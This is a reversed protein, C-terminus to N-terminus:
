MDEEDLFAMIDNQEKKNGLKVTEIDNLIEVEVNDQQMKAKQRQQHKWKVYIDNINGEIIKMIYCIMNYENQFNKANMWYTIDDKQKVFCEKIVEYDYFKHLEGIKRVMVPPVIQGEEYNLVEIAVYEMLDHRKGQEEKYTDYEEKNCYYKNLGKQHDTVKYFTDTDGKAKCIKCVVKRAM